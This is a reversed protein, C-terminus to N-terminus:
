RAGGTTRYGKRRLWEKREQALDNVGQAAVKEKRREQAIIDNCVKWIAYEICTGHCDSTRRSCDPECPPQKEISM